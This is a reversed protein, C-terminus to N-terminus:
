VDNSVSQIEAFSTSYSGRNPDLPLNLLLLSIVSMSCPVTFHNLSAL